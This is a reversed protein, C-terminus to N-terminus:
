LNDVDFNFLIIKINKRQLKAALFFIIDVIQLSTKLHSSHFDVGSLRPITWINLVRPM